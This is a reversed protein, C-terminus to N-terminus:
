GYCRAATLKAGTVPAPSAQRRQAARVAKTAVWPAKRMEASAGADGLSDHVNPSDPFMEANRTLTALGDALRGRRLQAYGTANVIQEAIRPYDRAYTAALKMVEDFRGTDALIEAATVVRNPPPLAPYRFREGFLRYHRQMGEVGGVSDLEAL